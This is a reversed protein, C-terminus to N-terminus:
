SASAAADLDARQAAHIEDVLETLQQQRRPSPPDFRVAIVRENITPLTSGGLRLPLGRMTFEVEVQSPHKGAFPQALEFACGEMRIEVITGRLTKSEKLFRMEATWDFSDAAATRHIAGILPEPPPAPTPPPLVKPTEAAAPKVLPKESALIRTTKPDFHAQALAEQIQPMAEQDVLCTLLGALENRARPTPHIFRVGILKEERVWQTMGGIHLVMGFLHLTVEVYALAGHPFSSHSRILCGDLSIDIIQCPNRDGNYALTGTADGLPYRENARRDRARNMQEVIRERESLTASEAM